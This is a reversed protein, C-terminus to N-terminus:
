QVAELFEALATSPDPAALIPRGVVLHTAGAMVAQKPAATRRQDATADGPRRIGPVVLWPEGLIAQRIAGLELPSCVVGRLGAEMAQRALRPSEASIEVEHRGTARGYSRADHSTLVTVGVLGLDPGAAEAAAAMMEEGGLTHVTAMRVGLERAATVAGAVTNPIDHWKLDLFIELGRATLEALLGPGERTMLVSGCKVWRVAPLRDLLRLSAERDPLDLALILEAM